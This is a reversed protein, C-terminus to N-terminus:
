LVLLHEIQSVKKVMEDLTNKNKLRKSKSRSSNEKKGPVSKVPGRAKSKFKAKKLDEDFRRGKTNANQPGKSFHRNSKFEEGPTGSWNAGSPNGESQTSLRGKKKKRFKERVENYDIVHEAGRKETSKNPERPGESESSLLNGMLGEKAAPQTKKKSSQLFDGSNAHSQLDVVSEQKATM